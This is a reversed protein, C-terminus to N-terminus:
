LLEDRKMTYWKMYMGTTDTEAMEQWEIIHKSHHRTMESYSM